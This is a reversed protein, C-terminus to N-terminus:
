HALQLPRQGRLRQRDAPPRFDEGQPPDHHRGVLQHAHHDDHGLHQRVPLRSGQDCEGTSCSATTSLNQQMKLCHPCYCIFLDDINWFFILIAILLKLVVTNIPSQTLDCYM